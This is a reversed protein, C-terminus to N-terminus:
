KHRRETTPQPEAAKTKTCKSPPVQASTSAKPVRDESVTELVRCKLSKTPGNIRTRLRHPPLQVNISEDKTESGERPMAEDAKSYVKTRLGRDWQTKDNANANPEDEFDFFGAAPQCPTIDDKDQAMDYNSGNGSLDNEKPLLYDS